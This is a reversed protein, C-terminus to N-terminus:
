ETMKVEHRITKVLAERLGVCPRFGTSAIKAASFTTTSCFKRVRVSSIPLSKGTVTSVLDCGVGALYGLAYPIRLRSTGPKGVTAVIITVLEQMSLDPKDVYNFLHTGSDATLMQTLFASLNGVYAMSKKNRGSGVMLFRRSTIQRVLQYVNGRNGEGFVVTPRVLVLSRLLPAQAQWERYIQEARLKSRGYPTTPISPQEEPTDPKANGYVAVSSTFVLKNIRHERCADCLHSAGTVNVTEYKTAPRVNDRHEAALNYIVESGALATSLGERDRVDCRRYEVTVDVPPKVDVIRVDHGASALTKALRRGIFGSGGLIAVASM